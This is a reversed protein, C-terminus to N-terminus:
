GGGSKNAANTLIKLNLHQWLSYVADVLVCHVLGDFLLISVITCCYEKPLTEVAGASKGKLIARQVCM